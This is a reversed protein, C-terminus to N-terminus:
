GRNRQSQPHRLAPRRTIRVIAGKRSHSPDDDLRARYVRHEYKRDQDRINQVLDRQVYGEKHHAISGKWRALM